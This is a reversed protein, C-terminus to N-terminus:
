EGGGWVCLHWEGQQIDVLDPGFKCGGTHTWWVHLGGVSVGPWRRGVHWVSYCPFRIVQGKHGFTAERVKQRKTKKETGQKTVTVVIFSFQTTMSLYFSQHFPRALALLHKVTGPVSVKEGPAKCHQHTQHLIDKFILVSLRTRKCASKWSFMCSFNWVMSNKTVNEGTADFQLPFPLKWCSVQPGLLWKLYRTDLSANTVSLIAEFKPVFCFVFGMLACPRALTGYLRESFHYYWLWSHCCLKLRSNKAIGWLM